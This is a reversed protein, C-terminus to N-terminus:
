DAVKDANEKASADISEIKAKANQRLGSEGAFTVKTATGGDSEKEYVVKVKFQKEQGPEFSPLRWTLVKNELKAQPITGLLKAGTPIQDIVAVDKAISTGVNRITIKYIHEKGVVGLRPSSSVELELAKTDNEADAGREGYASAGQEKGPENFSFSTGKLYVIDGHQLIFEKMEKSSSLKTLVGTSEKARLVSAATTVVSLESLQYNKNTTFPVRKGKADVILVDIYGSNRKPNELMVIDNPKCEFYNHRRLDRVVKQDRVILLKHLGDGVLAQLRDIDFKGTQIGAHAVGDGFVFIPNPPTPKLLEHDVFVIDGHRLRTTEDAPIVGWDSETRFIQRPIRPDYSVRNLADRLTSGLGLEITRPRAQKSVAVVELLGKARDAAPESKRDRKAVVVIDGQQVPTAWAGATRELEDADGRVEGSFVIRYDRVIRIRFKGPSLRAFDALTSNQKKVQFVGPRRVDGFVLIEARGSGASASDSGADASGSEPKTAAKPPAEGHQKLVERIQDLQEPTGRIILKKNEVDAQISPPYDDAAFMNALMTAASVPTMKKLSIVAVKSPVDEFSELTGAKIGLLEFIQEQRKDFSELTLQASGVQLEVRELTTKDTVGAEKLNKMAAQIRSLKSQWQTKQRDLLQLQLRLQSSLVDIEQDLTQLQETDETTSEEKGALEQQEKQVARFRQLLQEDFGTGSSAAPTSLGIDNLEAETILADGLMAVDTDLSSRLALHIDGRKKALLLKRAQTPTVLVSVNRNTPLKRGAIKDVAFIEIFQLVTGTRGVSGEATRVQYTVMVDVRSGPALMNSHTKTHEIPVTVVRMGAPIQSADDTESLKSVTLWDGPMVAVKLQQDKYESRDTIIGEPVLDAPVSRFESNTEDLASGVDISATAILVSAMAPSLGSDLNPAVSRWPRAKPEQSNLDDLIPQTSRRFRGNRNKVSLDGEINNPPQQNSNDQYRGLNDGGPPVFGQSNPLRTGNRTPQRNSRVPSRQPAPIRGSGQIEADDRFRMDSDTPESMQPKRENLQPPKSAPIPSPGPESFDPPSEPISRSGPTAEPLPYSRVDSSEDRSLPGSDFSTDDPGISSARPLRSDPPLPPQTRGPRLNKGWETLTDARSRIMSPDVGMPLAGEELSPHNYIPERTAPRKLKMKQQIIQERREFRRKLKSELHAVRQKLSQIQQDFRRQERAFEQWAAARQPNGSEWLTMDDGFDVGAAANRPDTPQQPPSYYSGAAQERAFGQEPSIRSDNPQRISQTGAAVSPLDNQAIQPSVARMRDQLSQSLQETVVSAKLLQRYIRLDIQTRFNTSPDPDNEALGLDAQWDMLVSASVQAPVGALRQKVQQQFNMRTGPKDSFVASIRKLIVDQSSVNPSEAQSAETSVAPTTSPESIELGSETPEGLSGDVSEVPASQPPPSFTGPNPKGLSADTLNFTGSQPTAVGFSHPQPEFMPEKDVPVNAVGSFQSVDSFQSVVEQGDDVVTDLERDLLGQGVVDSRRPEKTQFSAQISSGLWCCAAILLAVALWSRVRRSKKHQGIVPKVKNTESM